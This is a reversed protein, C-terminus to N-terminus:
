DPLSVITVTGASGDVEVIAGDPILRTAEAVSAVCPIGLERSVIMAHSGMAGVNVVVGAAPVFLPVWSPDTQPAILIDGPELALPDSADLIVRARGRATGGSGANGTLVDGASSQTVAVSNRETMQDLGPVDHNVVFVPERDYLTQFQTWRSEILDKMSEPDHRCQSLEDDTLMFIKEIKDIVGREVLRRGFERLAMRMENIAIVVNTKARERGSLFLRSSQMAAEFTGAAEEDGALKERMEAAVRDREAVSADHRVSPAKSEDSRRMLDIAALAIRPRVEWSPSMIDYENQARSGYTAIFEDFRALFDNADDSGSARLTDLVADPGGEFAARLEESANAVRGLEWMAHSPAASDVDIGALLRISATPDGVAECLAGLAGPGLSSLSSIRMANEFLRQIAPVMERARALLASDTASALDPRNTRLSEAYEKDADLEPISDTSMTWAMSEALAAEHKPSQHWPQEEYEPIDDRDDFFALDIAQPTVGPMRAGLLRTLSLPNYLYGGFMAFLEPSEPNEFEDWDLVGIDIYADRLSICLGQRVVLDQGLPSFPDPFVDAANGRTWAPFRDGIASDGFWTNSDSASTTVVAVYDSKM